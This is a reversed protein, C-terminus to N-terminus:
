QLQESYDEVMSSLDKSLTLGLKVQEMQGEKLAKLENQLDTLAKIFNDKGLQDMAEQDM